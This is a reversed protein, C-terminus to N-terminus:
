EGTRLKKHVVKIVTCFERLMSHFYRIKGFLAHMGISCLTYQPRPRTKSKSKWGKMNNETDDSAFKNDSYYSTSQVSNWM